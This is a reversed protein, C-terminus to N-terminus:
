ASEPIYLHSLSSRGSMESSSHSSSSYGNISLPRIMYEYRPMTGNYMDQIAPLYGFLKIIIRCGALFRSPPTILRMRFRLVLRFLCYHGSRLRRGIEVHVTATKVSIICLVRAIAADRLTKRSVPM